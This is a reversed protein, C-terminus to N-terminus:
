APDPSWCRGFTQGAQWQDETPWEYGWEYDLADSAIARAADACVSQGADRVASQGPYAGGKGAKATLDLVTIAKWSHDERCLVHSFAATGPQATGCMGYETRGAPKSLAKALGSDLRALRSDGTVAIVDCRYWEAGADSQEITPTFWVPRLLSLKLQEPTAGVYDALQAPCRKAVQTRAADSDVALLHGNAVLDLQGVAFTESTHGKGCPVPADANTPAIAEHYSIRYCTGPGPPAPPPAVPVPTPTPTTTASASPTPVAEPDGDDGSTCGALALACALTLFVFPRVRHDGGLVRLAPQGGEV